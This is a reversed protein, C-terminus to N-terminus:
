KFLRNSCNKLFTTAETSWIPPFHGYGPPICRTRCVLYDAKDLMKLNTKQEATLRPSQLQQMIGDNIRDFYYNLTDAIKPIDISYEDELLYLPSTYVEKNDSKRVLQIYDFGYGEPYGNM